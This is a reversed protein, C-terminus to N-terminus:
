AAAEDETEDDKALLADALEIIRDIWAKETAREHSDSPFIMSQNSGGNDSPNFMVLWHLYTRGRHV